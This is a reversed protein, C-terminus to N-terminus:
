DLAQGADPVNGAHEPSDAQQGIELPSPNNPPSTLYTQIWQSKEAPLAPRRRPGPPERMPRGALKPPATRDTHFVPASAPTDTDQGRNSPPPRRGPRRQRSRSSHRSNRGEDLFPETTAARRPEGGLM